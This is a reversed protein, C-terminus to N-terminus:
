EQEFLHNYADTINSKMDDNGMAMLRAMLSYADLRANDGGKEDLAINFSQGLNKFANKYATDIKVGDGSKILDNWEQKDIVEFDNKHDKVKSINLNSVEDAFGLLEEGDTVEETSQVEVPKVDIPKEEKPSEVSPEAEVKATTETAPAATPKM